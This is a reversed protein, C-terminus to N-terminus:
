RAYAGLGVLCYVYENIATGNLTYRYSFAYQTRPNANCQSMDSSFPITQIVQYHADSASCDVEEVDDVEQATTSDPLTGNLCTGSTYPDPAETETEEAYPDDTGYDYPDESYPDESYPDETYPDESYPDDTYPEYTGSYSYSPSSYPSADDASDDGGGNAVVAVFVVLAAVALVAVWKGAGTGGAAGPTVRVRLLVEQQGVWLRVLDGDRAPPIRVRVAGSPLPVTVVAGVAAQQPTLSISTEQQSM